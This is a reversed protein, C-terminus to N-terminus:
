LRVRARLRDRLFKLSPPHGSRKQILHYRPPQYLERASKTSVGNLESEKVFFANVGSLTCAVLRYGRPEFLDVFSQLSAGQYDDGEWVHNEDYVLAVEVPPPFKANYEVCVVRPEVVSVAKLVELDNGDIDLSLFDIEAPFTELGIKRLGGEVASNVNHRNIFVREFAILDTGDCDLAQEIFDMNKADADMWLGRWGKLLLYHTNNELGDGCGIEVFVKSKEGIDNFIKEIIGDEDLQSFVKFGSLVVAEPDQERIGAKIEDIRRDLHIQLETENIDMFRRYAGHVRRWFRNAPRLATRAAAGIAALVRRADRRHEFSKAPM